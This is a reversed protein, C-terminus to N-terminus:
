VRNLIPDALVVRPRTIYGASSDPHVIAYFLNKGVAPPSLRAAVGDIRIEHSFPVLPTKRDGPWAKLGVGNLMFQPLRFVRQHYLYDLKLYDMALADDRLSFTKMFVLYQDDLGLAQSPTGQEALYRALREFLVVPEMFELLRNISFCFRKSNYFSDFIETFSKLDSIEDASVERNSIVEYPPFSAFQYQHRDVEEWIPAGPLFKLFGLQLEQPRLAVVKAFSELMEKRTEGPLGFILDAHIHIRGDKVLRRMAQFLKDNDQRRRIADQVRETATQVGIEFQFMGEPLTEFFDLLEPTLLDGVVEFHFSRGRFQTLWQMLRMVRDPQLNFTRDVFKVARTDSAVLLEIQRCVTEEDFYRVTKDLASLCFSCRFPCGRSTEVYAFRYKLSSVDEDIYAPHLEPLDNGYTNWRLLVEDAPISSELQYKLFEVWKSEGEGAITTYEASLEKEFSVEPGGVVIALKPNQKKLIEILQISQYRNWIYISIGLVRPHLKQIEAAIRWLPDTTIFERIWVNRFGARRAANRLYRLAPSSHIFRANLTVLGISLDM